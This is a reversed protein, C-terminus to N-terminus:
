CHASCTVGGGGQGVDQLQLPLNQLHLHHQTNKHTHTNRTNQDMSETGKREEQLGKWHTTYQELCNPSLTPRPGCHVARSGGGRGAMKVVVRM